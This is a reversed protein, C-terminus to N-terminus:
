GIFKRRLYILLLERLEADSIDENKRALLEKIRDIRADKGPPGMETKEAETRDTTREM